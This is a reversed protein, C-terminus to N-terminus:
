KLPGGPPGGTARYIRLREADAEAEMVRQEEEQKKVEEQQRKAANKEANTKKRQKLWNLWSLLM